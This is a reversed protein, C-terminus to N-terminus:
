KKDLIFENKKLEEKITEETYSGLLWENSYKNFRIIKTRLSTAEKYFFFIFYNPNTQNIYGLLEVRENAKKNDFKQLVEDIYLSAKEIKKSDLPLFEQKNSSRLTFLPYKRLNLIRLDRNQNYHEDKNNSLIVYNFEQDIFPELIAVEKKTKELKVAEKQKQNADLNTYNNIYALRKNYTEKKGERLAFLGILKLKKNFSIKKVELATMNIAYLKQATGLRSAKTEINAYLINNISLLSSLVENEKTHPTQRHSQIYKKTKTFAFEKSFEYKTIYVKNQSQHIIFLDNGNIYSTSITYAGLQTYGMGEMRKWNPDREISFSELIIEKNSAKPMLKTEWAITTAIKRTLLVTFNSYEKKYTTDIKM